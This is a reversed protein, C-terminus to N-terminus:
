TSVSTQRSPKIIAKLSHYITLVKFYREREGLSEALMEFTVSIFVLMLRPKVRVLFGPVPPKRTLTTSESGGEEPSFKHDTDGQWGRISYM